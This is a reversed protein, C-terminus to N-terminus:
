KPFVLLERIKPLSWLTDDVSAEVQDSLHKARVMLDMGKHSLNEGLVDEDAEQKSLVILEKLDLMVRLLEERLLNLRQLCSEAQKSPMNPCCSQGMKISSSQQYIEQSLAPYVHTSLLDELTELEILRVKNYRELRVQYRAILEEETLIKLNQMMSKVSPDKYIKLAEPTTKFNSLGRKGAEKEWEESYNNGEFLVNQAKKLTSRIVKLILATGVPKDEALQRLQKNMVDLSEAVAANIFTLPTSISQSSGHARFEFKNGTFAFPSTRNRDTNDRKIIPIKSLDLDIVEQQENTERKGGGKLLHQVVSTLTGGLFVSMIAPPAEDSGLRFDNGSNAVAVRLLSGFKYVARITAALFYLFRINDQPLRSPEFLNRGKNDSLSWNVHKGSGNLGNFPKEHFLAVLHYRKAVRCIVEMALQNHDTAINAHEFISALEYQSPAVENHRTKCPVGLKYLEHECEMMFSLIRPKITGFYHEELQQARPPPQGILTRGSLVLDPRLVYLDKEVVFYEQEPGANSIVYRVDKDGLLRLAEVAKESVARISRLLPTKKDLSEGSYSIFVSPICLTVGDKAEMLFMPSSADWATYGRAEFTSRRGGSPFSSADPESKVLEQGTFREIPNGKRDFSFFADHKEATLGTQPQFWHCYHSAGRDLAWKKVAAAVKEALEEGLPSTKTAFEQLIKVDSTPLHKRMTHFDFTNVGFYESTRTYISHERVDRYKFNRPERSSLAQIGMFRSAARSQVSM